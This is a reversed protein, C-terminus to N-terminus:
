GIPTPDSFHYSQRVFCVVPMESYAIRPRTADDGLYLKLRLDDRGPHNPDYIAIDVEDASHEYGYALVAHNQGLQFPDLSKVAILALTSLTGGDLDAQVKPLQTEIMERERSPPLLRLRTWLSESDPVRPSMWHLYVIAPAPVDALAFSDLMRKAVYDFLPGSGPADGGSPPPAGKEFLDRVTFTMGACLGNAADAFPIKQGLVDITWPPVHPWANPFPLGHTSPLFGPVTVM